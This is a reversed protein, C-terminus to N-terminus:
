LVKGWEKNCLALIGRWAKNIKHNLVVFDKITRTTEFTEVKGTARILKPAVYSLPRKTEIWNLQLRPMKGTIKWYIFAYWTLQEEKDVMAQTWKLGTKDDGIIHKELDVGDFVGLLIVKKKDIVIPCTMEYERRPYKPLFMEIHEIGEYNDEERCKAMERGFIMAPTNPGSEGFIYRKRYQEPSHSFIAYQTWSFYPRPTM